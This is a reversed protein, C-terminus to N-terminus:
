PNDSMQGRSRVKGYTVPSIPLRQVIRLWAGWPPSIVRRRFVSARCCEDHLQVEPRSPFLRASRTCAPMSRARPTGIQPEARTGSAAGHLAPLPQRSAASFDDDSVSSGITASPNRLLFASRAAFSRRSGGM